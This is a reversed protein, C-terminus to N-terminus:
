KTAGAQKLLEVIETLEESKAIMLANVGDKNKANVNAGNDLLIQVIDAYGYGRIHLINTSNVVSLTIGPINYQNRYGNITQDFFSIIQSINTFDSGVKLGTQEELSKSLLHESYTSDRNQNPNLCILFVSSFLLIILFHFHKNSM